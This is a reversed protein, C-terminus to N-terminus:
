GSDGHGDPGREHGVAEAESGPVTHGEPQHDEHARGSVEQGPTPLASRSPVPGAPRGLPGPHEVLLPSSLGAAPTLALRRRLDLVLRVLVFLVMPTAVWHLGFVMAEWVGPSRTPEAVLETIALAVSLLVAGGRAPNPLFWALPLVWAAYWPLLVPSVLVSILSAWGIAGIVVVPGLTDPRRGLHRVLAVLVWLFLLPFAVRVVLSAVDYAVDGGIAGAAGRVLVLVFRSPALWGQRSTVELTGLTPDETQMFPIVFPVAVAAAVALHQIIARGRRGRPQGLVSAVVAILLPVAGSVKVLAGFALAATAWLERHALLAVVAAGVALGLLADNHGGAVGHFVVVPNWGILVAAFAAREPIVRRAAVTVLLITVLSAAAALLKFALVIGAPSEVIRTVGGAVASFAPGYVSPSDIWDVSVLPYTPDSGFEAPIHTYPNAAHHSVMRGYIAYSYVDRSLFLPIAVAVAHLVIAVIVIRRIPLRGKWAQVLAFLFAGVSAFLAGAGLVAVANRPLSDLGLGEALATLPPFGEAGPYLPPTFPSGPRSAVLAVVGASGLIAATAGAARSRERIM